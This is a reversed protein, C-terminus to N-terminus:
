MRTQECLFTVSVVGVYVAPIEEVMVLRKECRRLLIFLFFFFSHRTHRGRGNILLRQTYGSPNYSQHTTLASQHFRFILRTEAVKTWLLTTQM